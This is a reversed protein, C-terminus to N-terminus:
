KLSGRAILNIEYILGQFTPFNQFHKILKFTKSSHFFKKFKKQNGWTVRNEVEQFKQQIIKTICKEFFNLVSVIVSSQFIKNEHFHVSELLM